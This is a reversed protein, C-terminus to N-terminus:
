GFFIPCVRERSAVRCPKSSIEGLKREMHYAMLELLAAYTKLNDRGTGFQRHAQSTIPAPQPASSRGTQGPREVRIRWTRRLCGRLHGTPIPYRCFGRGRRGRRSCGFTCRAVLASALGSTQVPFAYSLQFETRVALDFEHLRNRASATVHQLNKPFFCRVRRSFFVCCWNPLRRNMGPGDVVRPNIVGLIRLRNDSGPLRATGVRASDACRRGRRVAPQSCEDEREGRCQRDCCERIVERKVHSAPSRPQLRIQRFVNM